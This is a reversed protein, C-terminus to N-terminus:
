RSLSSSHHAYPDVYSWAASVWLETLRSPPGLTDMIRGIDHTKHIVCHKQAYLSVTHHDQNLVMWLNM